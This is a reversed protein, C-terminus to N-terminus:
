FALDLAAADHNGGNMCIYYQEFWYVPFPPPGSICVMSPGLHMVVNEYNM